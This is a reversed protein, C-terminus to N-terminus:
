GKEILILVYRYIVFQFGLLMYYTNLLVNKRAYSSQPLNKFPLIAISKEVNENTDLLVADQVKYNQYLNYGFVSLLLILLTNVWVMKRSFFRKRISSKTSNTENKGNLELTHADDSNNVDNSNRFKVEGPPYGYFNNFCTNFYTPSSFGVRYAIESATAVNNQLMIMAKELRFERIFKSTSKGTIFQLKRNLQSRSIGVANALEKVGFHEKDLNVELIKTLKEILVRDMSLESNM